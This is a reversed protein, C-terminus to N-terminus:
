SKWNRLIQNEANPVKKIEGMSGGPAEEDNAPEELWEYSASWRVM